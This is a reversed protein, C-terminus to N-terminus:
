NNSSVTKINLSQKTWEAFLPLGVELPTFSTIGLLERIKSNDAFIGNQDGPTSGQVFFESGEVASRIRELLVGITTKKGTGINIIQNKATLKTGSRYWAEVVDDIYIFDRYRSLSGKVEIKGTKVAQSIFISVMGQRLNNLDQGPGYVNFMRLAVYPLKDQFVKLYGESALKGVGYCSLPRPHISESSAQEDVEGYVSMSSAYVIRESSNKIGYQILNLTSVSNKELDLVPDDFSIEGSSQGALHLILGCDSPLNDVSSKNALDAEIFQIGKPVNDIRGSSLDDVGVVEYGEKLFRRAVHSGIFGAVGTILVKM